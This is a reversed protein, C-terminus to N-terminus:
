KPPNNHKLFEQERKIAKRIEFEKSKRRTFTFFTNGYVFKEFPTDEVHVRSSNADKFQQYHTRFTGIETKVEHAYEKVDKKLSSFARGYPGPFLFPANMALIPLIIASGPLAFLAITPVLRILDFCVVRIFKVEEDTLVRHKMQRESTLKLMKFSNNQLEVTPDIITQRIEYKVSKWDPLRINQLASGAKCVESLLHRRHNLHFYILKNSIHPYKLM